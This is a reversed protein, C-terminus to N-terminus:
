IGPKIFYFQLHLHFVYYWATCTCTIWLSSKLCCLCWCIVACSAAQRSMCISSSNDASSWAFAILLLIFSLKPSAIFSRSFANDLHQQLLSTRHQAPHPTPCNDNAGFHITWTSFCVSKCFSFASWIIVTQALNNWGNYQDQILMAHYSLFSLFICLQCSLWM